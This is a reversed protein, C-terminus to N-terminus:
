KTIVNQYKQIFSNESLFQNYRFVGYAFLFILMSLRVPRLGITHPIIFIYVFQMILGFRSLIAMQNFVAGFLVAALGVKLFFVFRNEGIDKIIQERFFWYIIINFCYFYISFSNAKETYDEGTLYSIYRSDGLVGGLLRSFLDSLSFFTIMIALGSVILVGMTNLKLVRNTIYIIFIAIASIHFMTACIIILVSQWSKGHYYQLLGYWALTTAVGFRIQTFGGGLYILSVYLFLSLFWYKSFGVIVKYLFFLNLFAVFTLYIYEPANISKFIVNTVVFFPEGYVDSLNYGGAFFEWLTPAQNYIRVYELYDNDCEFRLGAFLGLLIILGIMILKKYATRITIRFIDIICFVLVILFILWYWIM